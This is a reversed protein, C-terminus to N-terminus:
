AWGARRRSGATGVPARTRSELARSSGFYRPLGDGAWINRLTGAGPETGAMKVPTQMEGAVARRTKNAVSM